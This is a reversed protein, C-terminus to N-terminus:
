NFEVLDAPKLASFINKAVDVFMVKIMLVNTSFRTTRLMGCMHKTKRGM